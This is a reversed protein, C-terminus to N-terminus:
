QWPACPLPPCSLKEFAALFINEVRRQIGVALPAKMHTCGYLFVNTQCAKQGWEPSLVKLETKGHSEFVINLMSQAMEYTCKALRNWDHSEKKRWVALPAGGPWAYTLGGVSVAAALIGMGSGSWATVWPAGTSSFVISSWRETWDM